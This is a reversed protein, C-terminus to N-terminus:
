WSKLLRFLKVSFLGLMENYFDNLTSLNFFEWHLSEGVWVAGNEKFNINILKWSM